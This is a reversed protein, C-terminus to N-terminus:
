ESNFVKLAVPKGSDFVGFDREPKDQSLGEKEESVVPGKPRFGLPRPSSQCTRQALSAM